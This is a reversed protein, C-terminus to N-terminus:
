LESDSEPWDQSSYPLLPFDVEEEKADEKDVEVDCYVKLIEKERKTYTERRGYIYDMALRDAEKRTEYYKVFNKMIWHSAIDKLREMQMTKIAISIGRDLYSGKFRDQLDVSSTEKNLNQFALEIYKLVDLMQKKKARTFVYVGSNKQISHYLFTCIRKICYYVRQMETLSLHSYVINTKDVIINANSIRKYLNEMEEEFSSVIRREHCLKLLYYVCRLMNAEHGINYILIEGEELDDSDERKRKFAM